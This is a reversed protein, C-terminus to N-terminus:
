VKLEGRFVTVAPGTMLVPQDEAPWSIRLEGGNLQVAIERGHRVRGTLVAAVVSACAGTGCALTEGVGREWVRMRLRDAGLVRVFEANAQRPFVKHASVQPGLTLVQEDTIAEVFSVAHPNGMSVATLALPTADVELVVGIVRETAPRLTTPVEGAALRPVGM